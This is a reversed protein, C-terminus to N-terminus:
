YKRVVVTQDSPKKDIAKFYRYSSKFYFLQSKFRNSTFPKSPLLPQLLPLQTEKLLAQLIASIGLPTFKNQGIWLQEIGTNSILAAAIDDAAEDDIGNNEISLVELSKMNTLAKSIIIVGDSKIKNHNLKSLCILCNSYCSSSNMLKITKICVKSIGFASFNNTVNFYSFVKASTFKTFVKDQLMKNDLFLLEIGNLPSDHCMNSNTDPPSLETGVNCDLCGGGLILSELSYHTTIVEAISNASMCTFNNDAFDIKKLQKLTVLAPSLKSIGVTGIANGHARLHELAVCNSILDTFNNVAEQHLNNNSIDFYTLYSLKLANFTSTTDDVQLYVGDIDLSTLRPNAAIVPNIYKTIDESVDSSCISLSKLSKLEKLSLLLTAMGKAQLKNEGISFEEMATNHSVVDAIDDAAEDTILNSYLSLKTLGDNKLSLMISKTERSNLCCDNITLEQIHGNNALIEAILNAAKEDIKHDCLLMKNLCTSQMLMSLYIHMIVSHSINGQIVLEELYKFNVVKVTENVNQNSLINSPTDSFDSVDQFLNVARLLGTTLLTESQAAQILIKSSQLHAVALLSHQGYNTCVIKLSKPNRSFNFIKVLGCMQLSHNKTILRQLNPNIMITNILEYRTDEVLLRSDIQLEKLSNLHKFINLLQDSKLSQAYTSDLYLLELKINFKIMNFINDITEETIENRSLNLRKLCSTNQLSKVIANMSVIQLSCNELLLTELKTSNALVIALQEAVEETIVNDSLDLTKLNTINNQLACLVKPLIKSSFMISKSECFVTLIKKETVSLVVKFKDKIEDKRINNIKEDVLAIFNNSTSKM